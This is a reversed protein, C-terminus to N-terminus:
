FLGIERKKVFYRRIGSYLRAVSAKKLFNTKVSMFKKLATESLQNLNVKM